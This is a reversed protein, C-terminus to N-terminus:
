IGSRPHSTIVFQYEEDLPQGGVSVTTDLISLTWQLDFGWGGDVLDVTLESLSGDLSMRIGQSSSGWSSQPMPLVFLGGSSQPGTDISTGFPSVLRAAFTGVPQNFRVKILQTTGIREKTLDTEPANSYWGTISLVRFGPAAAERCFEEYPRRYYPYSGHLPTSAGDPDNLDANFWDSPDDASGARSLPLQDNYHNWDGTHKLSFHLHTNGRQFLLAGLPQDAFVEDDDRLGANLEVHAMYSTVGYRPYHVEFSRRARNVEKLVGDALPYVAAREDLVPPYIDLGTHDGSPDTGNSREDAYLWGLNGDILPFQFAAGPCRFTRGQAAVLSPAGEPLFTLTVLAFGLVARLAVRM